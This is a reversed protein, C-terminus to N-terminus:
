DLSQHLAPDSHLESHSPSPLQGEILQSRFQRCSPTNLAGICGVLFLFALWWQWVTFRRWLSWGRYKVTGVMADLCPAIEHFRRLDAESDAECPMGFSLHLEGVAYWGSGGIHLVYMRQWSTSGDPHRKLFTMGLRPRGGHHILHLGYEKQPQDSHWSDALMRLHRYHERDNASPLMSKPFRARNARTPPVLTVLLFLKTGEFTGVYQRMVRQDEEGVVSNHDPRWQCDYQGLSYEVWYGLNSMTHRDYDRLVPPQRFPQDPVFRSLIFAATGSYDGDAYDYTATGELLPTVDEGLNEPPMRIHLLNSSGRGFRAVLREIEERCYSSKAWNENTFAIGHSCSEVAERIGRNVDAEFEDYDAALVEYEAFWVDLDHARLVDVVARVNNADLSRYSVFIKPGAM